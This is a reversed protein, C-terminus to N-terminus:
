FDDDGNTEHLMDELEYTQTEYSEISIIFLEIVILQM